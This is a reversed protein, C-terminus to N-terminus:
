FIWQSVFNDLFFLYLIRRNVYNSALETKMRFRTKFLFTRIVCCIRVNNIRLNLALKVAM